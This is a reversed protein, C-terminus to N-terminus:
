LRMLNFQIVPILRCQQPTLLTDVTDVAVFDVTTKSNTEAKSNLVTWFANLGSFYRFKNSYNQVFQYMVKFASSISKNLPKLSSIRFAIIFRAKTPSKHLKPIWYISPLVKNDHSVKLKFHEQLFESHENIIVQDNFEHMNYADRNNSVGYPDIGLEKILVEINFHKCTFGSATM